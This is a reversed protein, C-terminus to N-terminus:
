EKEHYSLWWTRGTSVCEKGVRGAESRGGRLHPFLGPQRGHPIETDAAKDLLIICLCPLADLAHRLPRDATPQGGFILSLEANNMRIIEFTALDSSCVDSSWDSIRM